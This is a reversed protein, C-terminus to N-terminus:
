SFKKEELYSFFNFDIEQSKELNKPIKPNKSWKQLLFINESNIM